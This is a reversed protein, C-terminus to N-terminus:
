PILNPDDYVRGPAELADLAAMEGATLNRQGLVALDQRMYAATDAGPITVAGHQLVYKLLVQAPTAGHRAAIGAVTPSRLGAGRALPAYATVVVGLRACEARVAATARFLGAHFEFQNVAPTEGVAMIDRLHRPM